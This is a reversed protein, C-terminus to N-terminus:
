VYSTPVWELQSLPIFFDDTPFGSSPYYTIPFGATVNADPDFAVIPQFALSDLVPRSCVQFSKVKRALTPNVSKVGKSAATAFLSVAVLATVRSFLM